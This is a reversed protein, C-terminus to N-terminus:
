ARWAAIATGSGVMAAAVIATLPDGTMWKYVEFIGYVTAGGVFGAGLAFLIRKIWHEM